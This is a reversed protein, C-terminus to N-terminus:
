PHWAFRLWDAGDPTPALTRRRDEMEIEVNGDSSVVRTVRVDDAGDLLPHDVLDGIPRGVLAAGATDPLAKDLVILRPPRMAESYVLGASMDHDPRVGLASISIRGARIEVEASIPSAAVAREFGNSGDAARDEHFVLLLPNVGANRLITWALAHIDLSWAPTGDEPWRGLARDRARQRMIRSLAQALTAEQRDARLYGSISSGCAAADVVSFIVQREPLDIRLRTAAEPDGHRTCYALAFAKADELQDSPDAM